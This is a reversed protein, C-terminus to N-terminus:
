LVEFVSYVPGDPFRHGIGIAIIRNLWDYRGLPAEFTPAIRFYYDAPDVEEGSELRRIVDPPGHRVGGYRMTIPIGDDTNLLLRVDLTTSGDGRVAQWDNSGDLVQGSLMEGEFRGSPVIGIRRFAGPTAGVVVIPKVDLKMVFLPRTSVTRMADPLSAFDPITLM